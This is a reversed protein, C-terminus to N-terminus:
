EKIALTPVSSSRDVQEPKARPEFSKRIRTLSLANLSILQM